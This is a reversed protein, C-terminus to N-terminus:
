YLNTSKVLPLICPLGGTENDPLAQVFKHLIPSDILNSKITDISPCIVVAENIELSRSTVALNNLLTRLENGFVLMPARKWDITNLFSEVEGRDVVRTLLLEYDADTGRGRRLRGLLANFKEDETRMQQTLQVCTIIQLWISRGVKCQIEQITPVSVPVVTVAPSDTVVDNQTGTVVLVVDSDAQSRGQTDEGGNLIANRGKEKEIQLTKQWKKNQKVTESTAPQFAQWNFHVKDFLSCFDPNIALKGQNIQEHLHTFRRNRIMAVAASEVCNETADASLSPESSEGTDLFELLDDVDDDDDYLTAAFSKRLPVDDEDEKNSNAEEI